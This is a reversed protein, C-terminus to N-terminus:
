VAEEESEDCDEVPALPASAVSGASPSEDKSEERTFCKSEGRAQASASSKTTSPHPTEPEPERVVPTKPKTKEEERKFCKSDAVPKQAEQPTEPEPERPTKARKPKEDAEVQKEVKKIVDKNETVVSQEQEVNTDAEKATPTSKSSSKRRSQQSGLLKPREQAETSSTRPRLLQEQSRTRAARPAVEQSKSRAMAEPQSDEASESWTAGRRLLVVQSGSRTSSPRLEQLRDLAARLDKSSAAGSTTRTARPQVPGTSQRRLQQAAAKATPPRSSQSESWTSGRKLKGASSSRTSQPTKPRALLVPDQKRDRKRELTKKGVGYWEDYDRVPKGQPGDEYHIADFECLRCYMGSPDSGCNKGAYGLEQMEESTPKEHSIYRRLGALCCWFNCCGKVFSVIPGCCMSEKHIPVWMRDIGMNLDVVGIHSFNECFNEWQMWYVGEENGKHEYGLRGQIFAHLNWLQSHDSWPGTWEGQHSLNRIQVMRLFQDSNWNKRVTRVQLVTFTQRPPLGHLMGAGTTGGCLLVAGNRHHFRLLEFLESVRHQEKTPKFFVAGKNDPDNMVVMESRAWRGTSALEFRCAKGGTMCVLAWETCGDELAAYSGLIKAFAKELIMHWVAKGMTPAFVPVPLGTEGRLCYDPEGVDLFVPIHDDVAIVKWAEQLPDYMRLHYKGRPNIEPTFFLRGVAGEHQSLEAIAMLLWPDRPSDRLLEKPEIPGDFLCMEDTGLLHPHRPKQRVDQKSFNMARAWVVQSNAELEAIDEGEVCLGSVEGFSECDPKFAEDTFYDTWRGLTLWFVRRCCIHSFHGCYIRFSHVFLVFPSCVCNWFCVSKGLYVDKWCCLYRAVLKRQPANKDYLGLVILYSLPYFIGFGFVIPLLLWFILHM